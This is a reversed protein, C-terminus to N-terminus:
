IFLHCLKKADGYIMGPSKGEQKSEKGTVSLASETWCIFEGKDGFTFQMCGSMVVADNQLPALYYFLLLMSSGALHIGQYCNLSAIGMTTNNM